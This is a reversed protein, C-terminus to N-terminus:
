LPRLRRLRHECCRITAAAQDRRFGPDSQAVLVMLCHKIRGRIHRPHFDMGFVVHTASRPGSVFPITMVPIQDAACSKHRACWRRRGYRFALLFETMSERRIKTSAAMAALAAGIGNANAASVLIKSELEKAAACFAPLGIRIAM